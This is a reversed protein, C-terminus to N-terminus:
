RKLTGLGAYGLVDEDEVRLLRNYKVVRESRCPAGAKIQGSNAAIALDAIFHDSTEGSRHSIVSRYGHETAVNVCDLTESVTGVQNLKILVANAVGQEIGQRLRGVSTVFIDDGILQVKRGLKSTLHQWGAWDEEALGDEISVIPYRDLWGAYLDTM